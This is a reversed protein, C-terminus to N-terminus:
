VLLTYAIIVIFSVLIFKFKSPLIQQLTNENNMSDNNLFKELVEKWRFYLMYICHFVALYISKSM